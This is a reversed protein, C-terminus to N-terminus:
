LKEYCTEEIELLTLGDIWGGNQLLDKLISVEKMSMTM